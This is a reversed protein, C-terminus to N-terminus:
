RLSSTTPKRLVVTCVLVVLIFVAAARNVGKRFIWHRVTEGSSWHRVAFGLFMSLQVLTSVNHLPLGTAVVPSLPLLFIVAFLFLNVQFYSFIAVVTCFVITSALGPLVVGTLLTLVFAAFLVSAILGNDTRLETTRTAAQM